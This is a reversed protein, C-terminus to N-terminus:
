FIGEPMEDTANRIIDAITSRNQIISELLSPDSRNWYHHGGYWERVEDDLEDVMVWSGDDDVYSAEAEEDIGDRFLDRTMQGRSVNMPKRTMQIGGGSYFTLQAALPQGRGPDTFLLEAFGGDKCGRWNSFIVNRWYNWYETQLAHNIILPVRWKAVDAAYDRGTHMWTVGDCRRTGGVVANKIERALVEGFEFAHDHGAVLLDCMVTKSPGFSLVKDVLAKIKDCGRWKWTSFTNHHSVLFWFDVQDAIAKRAVEGLYLEQTAKTENVFKDVRSVREAQRDVAQNQCGKYEKIDARNIMTDIAAFGIEKTGFKIRMNYFYDPMVWVPYKLGNQGRDMSHLYEAMQYQSYMVQEYPEDCHDHNGLVVVFPVNHLASGGHDEFVKKFLRDLLGDGSASIGDNYVNDGLGIIMDVRTKNAIRGISAVTRNYERTVAGKDGGQDGILIIRFSNTDSYNMRSNRHDFYAKAQDFGHPRTTNFPGEIFIGTTARTSHGHEQQTPYQTQQSPPQTPRGTPHNTPPKTQPVTPHKTPPQTPRGTPHNTPPKTPHSTATFHQYSEVAHHSLTGLVLIAILIMLAGIVVNLRNRKSLLSKLRFMITQNQHIANDTDPLPSQESNNGTPLLRM